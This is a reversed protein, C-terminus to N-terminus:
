SVWHAQAVLSMGVENVQLEGHSAVPVDQVSGEHSVFIDSFPIVAGPLDMVVNYKRDLIPFREQIFLDYPYDQFCRLADTIPVCDIHFANAAIPVM